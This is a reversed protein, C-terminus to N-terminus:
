LKRRKTRAANRMMGRMQAHLARAVEGKDIVRTEDASSSADFPDTFKGTELWVMRDIWASWALELQPM